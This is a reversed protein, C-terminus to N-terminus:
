NPLGRSSNDSQEEVLSWVRIRRDNRHSHRKRKTKSERPNDRSFGPKERMLRDIYQLHATPLLSM